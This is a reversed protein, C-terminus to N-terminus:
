NYSFIFHSHPHVYTAVIECQQEPTCNCLPAETPCPVCARVHLFNDNLHMIQVPIFSSFILFVSPAHTTQLGSYQLCHRPRQFRSLPPLSVSVFAILTPPLLPPLLLLLLLLPYVLSLPPTSFPPSPSSLKFPILVLFSFAYLCMM